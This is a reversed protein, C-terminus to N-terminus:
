DPMNEDFKSINLFALYFLQKSFLNFAQFSTLFISYCVIGGHCLLNRFVSFRKFINIEFFHTQMHPKTEFILM